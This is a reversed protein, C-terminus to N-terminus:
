AHLVRGCDRSLTTVLRTHSSCRRSAAIFSRLWLFDDLGLIPSPGPHQMVGVLDWADDISIDSDGDMFKRGFRSMTDIPYRYSFLPPLPPLVPACRDVPSPGGAVLQSAASCPSRSCRRPPPAALLMDASAPRRRLLCRPQSPGGRVQAPVALARTASHVQMALNRNPLFAPASWINDGSAMGWMILLFVFPSTLELFTELPRRRKLILNKRMVERFQRRGLGSRSIALPREDDAM